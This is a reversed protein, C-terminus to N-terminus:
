KALAPAPLPIPLINAIRWGAATKTLTQNMLFLADPAAQGAPGINFTIPAYVQATMDNVLVVKLNSADPSLKWTGQYLAEFRKLAAERGWIPTGRTVWLFNPSDLLLERVAVIDHANQANVFQDFAARVDDEPAGRVSTASFVLMGVVFLSAILSKRPSRCLTLANVTNEKFSLHRRSATGHDREGKSGDRCLPQIEGAFRRFLAM